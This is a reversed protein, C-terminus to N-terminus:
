NGQEEIDGRRLMKSAPSRWDFHVIWRRLGRVASSPASIRGLSEASANFKSACSLRLRFTFNVTGEMGGELGRSVTKSMAVAGITGEKGVKSGFFKGLKTNSELVPASLYELVSSLLFGLLTDCM